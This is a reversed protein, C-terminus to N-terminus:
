KAPSPVNINSPSILQQIQTKEEQLFSTIKYIKNDKSLQIESTKKKKQESKRSNAKIIWYKSKLM